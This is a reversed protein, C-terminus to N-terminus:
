MPHTNKSNANITALRKHYIYLKCQLGESDPDNLKGLAYIDAYLDPNLASHPADWLLGPKCRKRRM